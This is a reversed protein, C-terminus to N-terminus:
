VMSIMARMMGLATRYTLIRCPMADNLVSYFSSTQGEPM